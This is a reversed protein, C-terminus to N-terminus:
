LPLSDQRLAHLPIGEEGRQHPDGAEGRQLPNGFWFFPDTAPPHQVFTTQPSVYIAELENMLTSDGRSPGDAPNSKSEVRDIYSFCKLKALRLWYDGVIKCSDVKPSYGKVLSATASDNDVFHLLQTDELIDAWTDLALPGAFLELQGIQTKKEIWTDVILQPVVWATWLPKPARPSFLVAGVIYQGIERGPVDSADTYLITPCESPPDIKLERPPSSLLLAIMLSLGAKLSATLSYNKSSTYQRHRIAGTAARGVRGFMQDTLFSFKGVLRAAQSPSLINAEVIDNIEAITNKVRSAKPMIYLSRHEQLMSTNIMVGLIANLPGPIQSKESDLAFGLLCCLQQFCFRASDISWQPEVIFFDDFFHDIHVHFFRRCVRCIWEAVRYFNPVAHGAGFPQGYMEFLDVKRTEPNIVATVSISTQSDSLPVQRYAGKMDETCTHIQDSPKLLCTSASSKVMLMVQGIMAMPIKQMRRAAGNCGGKSHDDIRRFKPKGQEDTGQMLGFSPVINLMSGHKRLAEEYTMPPGMTGAQVEKLTKQYINTQLEIDMRHSQHGLEQLIKERREKSSTLFEKLSNQPEIVYPLFFNSQLAEGVIPMGTLCLEPVAKDEINVLEQLWRMVPTNIKCGLRKANTSAKQNDEKRKELFLDSAAVNKLQFLKELRLKQIDQSNQSLYQTADLLDQSLVQVSDSPHALKKSLAIHAKPDNLGDRILQEGRGWRPQLGAALQTRRNKDTEPFVVEEIPEIEQAERLVATKEVERIPNLGYVRVVEQTLPANPGSFIEVFSCRMNLSLLEAKLGLAYAKCFGQPYQRELGTAWSKVKGLKVLPHFSKHRKNTRSCIEKSGCTKQIFKVMSPMNHILVQLKQRQCPEFMCAHYFTTIIGPESCLKKWSPLHLALSRGTHELSFKRGTKHFILCNNAALNALETDKRVRMRQKYSLSPLGEPHSEDRLPRPRFKIGAIPIERARSFTACNPAWHSVNSSELILRLSESEKFVDKGRLVDWPEHVVHSTDDLKFNMDTQDASYKAPHSQSEYSHIVISPVSNNKDGQTIM